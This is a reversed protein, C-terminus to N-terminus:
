AEDTLPKGFILKAHGEPQGEVRALQRYGLREYFGPSQFTHTSVVVRRCRRLRAADEAAKMLARGYGRGRHPEGVWLQRVHCCGGWTDGAIGAVIRGGDGAITFCLDTGDAYGTALVNFEHLRDELFAAVSRVEEIKETIHPRDHM